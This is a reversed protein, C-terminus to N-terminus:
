GRAVEDMVAECAKVVLGLTLGFWCSQGSYHLSGFEFFLSGLGNGIVVEDKGGYESHISLNALNSTINPSAISDVLWKKDASVNTSACNASKVRSYSHCTKASHDLKDCLLVSDSADVCQLYSEYGVLMDHLEEFTLSTEWARIPMAIECFKPGISNLVYLTIDDESVHFDIVVLQDVLVKFAHLYESVLRSKQQILTLEEM